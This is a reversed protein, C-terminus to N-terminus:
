FKVSKPIKRVYLVTYMMIIYEYKEIIHTTLVVAQQLDKGGLGHPEM